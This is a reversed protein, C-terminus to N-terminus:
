ALHHDLSCSPFATFQFPFLHQQSLHLLSLHLWSLPSICCLSVSTVLFSLLSLSPSLNLQFLFVSLSLSPSPSLCLSVSVLSLSLTLCFHSLSLSICGLCVCFCLSCVSLHLCLSCVSLHSPPPLPPLSLSLSLHLPPLVAATIGRSSCPPVVRHGSGPSLVFWEPGYGAAGGEGGARLADCALGIERQNGEPHRSNMAIVLLCAFMCSFVHICRPRAFM